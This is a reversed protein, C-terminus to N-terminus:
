DASTRASRVTGSHPRGRRRATSTPRARAACATAPLLPSRTHPHCAIDHRVYTPRMCDSVPSLPQRCWTARVDEIRRRRTIHNPTRPTGAARLASRRSRLHTTTFRALSRTHHNALGRRTRELTSPAPPSLSVFSFGRWLAWGFLSLPRQPPSESSNRHASSSQRTRRLTNRNQARPAPRERPRGV